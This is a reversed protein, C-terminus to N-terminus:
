KSVFSNSMGIPSSASRVIYFASADVSTRASKVIRKDDLILKEIINWANKIEAREKITKCLDPKSLTLADL